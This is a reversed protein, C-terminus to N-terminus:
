FSVTTGVKFTRGPAVQLELPNVRAVAPDATNAYNSLTNPFYRTDFINQIGFNVKVNENPSWTAFADFVAFGEPKFADPDSRETPGAGFTGVFELELGHEPIEYRVGLVATLPVAGDFATEDAAPGLRQTGHQYSLNATAFIGDYFEYEGSVEIGWLQVDSVNISTVTGAPAGPVQQLGMIFDAYDAYFGGVSFWGNAFAGRVGAEYSQVSEPRLDPNPVIKTGPDFINSSSQFLQASTPMKFGEGYSAYVSYTDDLEYVAGFKKLLETTTIAEPRFGPLGPYTKDGTPDISYTALRVGPTLTLRDNLLKIEDQLFLDARVTEVRPFSFGQNITTVTAGTDSRYTENTGTYDGKTFDGDFGYTLRHSSAGLNFSSELQLDGELFTESYDRLQYVRQQRNSYTRYATSITKRGQPSYSVQWHVNDLWPAHVQWDHEIALRYREMYLDRPYANTIYATPTPAGTTAGSDWIQQVLTHREFFEGTVKIEHDENPTWVAKVLGNYASTDAPLLQDCRFYAPRTCGWIGGDPDANTLRPQTSTLNGVTAIVELDGFDYAGTIQKRWSNDFSDFTSKIEVAWPKDKGELLDSPDKTRFAVVGGLADAGYLVSNPGRVIEVAKMNFPDVFDRSGDTVREQIRSGDVLLQVRNGGMGRISFSNLQGWPNTVSTQRDVVVGPEYRVLDQIDRVVRKELDAATIVSVTMPVDLVNKTSRTASVTLRQLITTQQTSLPPTAQAMAAPSALLSAVLVGAGILTSSISARAVAAARRSTVEM